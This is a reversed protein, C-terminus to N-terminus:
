GGLLPALFTATRLDALTKQDPQLTQYLARGTSEMDELATLRNRATDVANAIPKIGGASSSTSVSAAAASRGRQRDMDAQLALIRDTFTQWAATQEPTLRLDVQLTGLHYELQERSLPGQAGAPGKAADSKEGAACGKGREGAGHRGGGAGNGMGGGFQAYADPVWLVSLFCTCAALVVLLYPKM